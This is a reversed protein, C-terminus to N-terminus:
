VTTIMSIIRHVNYLFIFITFTNFYLIYTDSFISFQFYFLLVSCLTCMMLNINNIYVTFGYWILYKCYWTTFDEIWHTMYNVCFANCVLISRPPDYLLIISLTVLVIFSCQLPLYGFNSLLKYVQPLAFVTLINAYDIDLVESKHSCHIKM